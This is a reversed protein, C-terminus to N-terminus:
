KGVITNKKQRHKGNMDRTCFAKQKEGGTAVVDVLNGAWYSPLAKNEVFCGDVMGGSTSSYPVKGAKENSPLPMNSYTM